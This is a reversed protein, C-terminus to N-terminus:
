FVTPPFAQTKTLISNTIAELSRGSQSSCKWCTPECSGFLLSHSRWQGSKVSDERVTRVRTVHSQAYMKKVRFRETLHISLRGCCHGEVEPFYLSHDKSLEAGKCASHKRRSRLVTKSIRLNYAGISRIGCILDNNGGLLYARGNFWKEM